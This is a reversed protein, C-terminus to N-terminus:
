DNTKLFKVSKLTKWHKRCVSVYKDESGIEVQNGKRVVDFNDDYRLIHTAKSMCFCLQKIEEIKDAQKFLEESGEFLNGFADTRLGYCVVPINMYDVLDTLQTVNYPSLFQAEDVVICSPVFDLSGLIEQIDQERGYPIAAKKIGLRSEVYYQDGEKSRTDLDSTILLTKNQFVSYNHALQLLHTSKGANMVSYVFKLKAM